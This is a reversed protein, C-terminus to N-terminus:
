RRMDPRGDRGGGVLEYKMLLPLGASIENEPATNMPWLSGSAKRMWVQSRWSESRRRSKSSLGVLYLSGHTQRWSSSSGGTVYFSTARCGTPRDRTGVCLPLVSSSFALIRWARDLRAETALADLRSAQERPKQVDTLVSQKQQHREQSELRSAWLYAQYAPSTTYKFCHASGSECPDARMPRNDRTLGCPRVKSGLLGSRTM